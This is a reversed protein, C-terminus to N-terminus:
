WFLTLLYQIHIELDSFIGLSFIKVKLRIEWFTSPSLSSLINEM